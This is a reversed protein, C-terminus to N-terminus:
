FTQIKKLWTETPTVSLIERPAHITGANINAPAGVGTQIVGLNEIGTTFSLNLTPAPTKAPATIPSPEVNPIRYPLVVNPELSM